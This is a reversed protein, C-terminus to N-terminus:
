SVLEMAGGDIRINVANLFDARRSCVFTVLDAVEEVRAIRHMPNPMVELAIHKEIDEWDDGWGEKKAKARYAAEVEPTRILGPSVTNVTVGTGALEKALSVTINAMAGKAAYYHPMVKNPRLSGVTGVHVIRGWGAQRLYPLFGETMRVSSLVNKQYLDIWDASSLSGWRGREATGYNNVLIDIEGNLQRIVDEAGDDDLIDGTVATAAIDMGAFEEVTAEAQGPEFGHVFVQAGEKALGKAIAKGTGRYSGTVLVKKTTLELDM